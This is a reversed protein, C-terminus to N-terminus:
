RREGAMALWEERLIGMSFSDSRRGERLIDGRMMGEMRFGVKEYSKLARSNYAHLGLSVRRLNLEIFAYQLMLRMADTGYGKGWFDREGIAIGVWGEGQPWEVVMGIYGILKDDSLSRISFGFRNEKGDRKEIWEKVKKESWLQAPESDALRHFETDREWLTEAKARTEPDEGSLRVLEGRFLDRM